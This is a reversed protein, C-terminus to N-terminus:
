RYTKYFNNETWHPWKRIIEFLKAGPNAMRSGVAVSAPSSSSSTMGQRQPPPQDDDGPVLQDYGFLEYNSRLYEWAIGFQLLKRLALVQAETPAVKDFRGILAIGLSNDNYNPTHQGLGNFGRGEFVSGDGGILFNYRIDDLGDTRMDAKQLNRVMQSCQDQHPLANISM